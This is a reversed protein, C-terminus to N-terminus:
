EHKAADNSEERPDGRWYSDYLSKSSLTNLDHALEAARDPDHTSLEELSQKIITNMEMVYAFLHEYEDIMKNRGQIWWPISRIFRWISGAARVSAEQVEILRRFSM